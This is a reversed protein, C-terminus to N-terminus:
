PIIRFGITAVRRFSSYVLLAVLKEEIRFLSSKHVVSHIIINYAHTVMFFKYKFDNKTKWVQLQLKLYRKMKGFLSINLKEM